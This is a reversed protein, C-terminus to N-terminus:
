GIRKEYEKILTKWDKPSSVFKRDTSKGLYELNRVNLENAWFSWGKFTKRKYRFVYIIKDKYYLEEQIKRPIINTFKALTRSKKNTEVWEKLTSENLGIYYYGDFETKKWQEIKRLKRDRRISYEKIQKEPTFTLKGIYVTLKHRTSNLTIACGFKIASHMRRFGHLLLRKIDAKPTEPYKTYVEDLIDYLTFDKITYYKEGSNTGDLLMTKLDGGLYVPIDKPYHKTNYHYILSYGTFDSEILDINSWRGLQRQKMFKEGEVIDFDIYADQEPIKFRLKDVLIKNLVLKICFKFPDALSEEFRKVLRYNHKFHSHTLTTIKSPTNVYLEGATLGHNFLIRM